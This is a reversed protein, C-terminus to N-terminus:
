ISGGPSGPSGGYVAFGPSGYQAVANYANMDASPSYSAQQLVGGTTQMDAGSVLGGGPTLVPYNFPTYAPAAPAGAAVANDAAIYGAYSPSGAGAAAGVGPTGYAGFGQTTYNISQLGGGGFGTTPLGYNNQLLGGGPTLSPQTMTQPQVTPQQAFWNMPNLVGGPAQGTANITGTGMSLPQAKSAALLLIGGGVLLGIATGTKM